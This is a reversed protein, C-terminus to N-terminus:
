ALGSTEFSAEHAELLLEFGSSFRGDPGPVHVLRPSTPDLECGLASLEEKALRLGRKNEAIRAILGARFAEDPRRTSRLERSLLKLAQEREEIEGVISNLLPRLREASPQDYTRKVKSEM